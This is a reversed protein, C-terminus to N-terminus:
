RAADPQQQASSAPLARLIKLSYFLAGRRRQGVAVPRLAERVRRWVTCACTWTVHQMYMYMHMYMCMCM